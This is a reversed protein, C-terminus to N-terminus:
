YSVKRLDSPSYVCAKLTWDILLHESYVRGSIPQAKSMSQVNFNLMEEDMM